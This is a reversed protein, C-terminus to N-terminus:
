KRTDDDCADSKNLMRRYNEVAELLEAKETELESITDSLQKHLIDVLPTSPLQDDSGHGIFVEDFYTFFTDNLLAQHLNEINSSSAIPFTLLDLADTVKPQTFSM